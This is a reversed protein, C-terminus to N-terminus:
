CGVIIYCGSIKTGMKALFLSKRDQYFFDCIRWWCNWLSWDNCEPIQGHIELIFIQYAFISHLFDTCMDWARMGVWFLYSVHIKIEFTRFLFQKRRYQKLNVFFWGQSREKQCFCKNFIIDFISPLEYFMFTQHFEDIDILWNMIRIFQLLGSTLHSIKLIINVARFVFKVLRKPKALLTSCQPNVNM